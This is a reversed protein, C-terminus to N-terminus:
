NAKGRFSYTQILIKAMTKKKEIRQKLIEESHFSKSPSGELLDKQQMQLQLLLQNFTLVANM